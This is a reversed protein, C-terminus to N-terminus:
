RELDDLVLVHLDQVRGLRRDNTLFAECGAELAAALQLTDPTRLAYAARLAAARDAIAIDIPLM